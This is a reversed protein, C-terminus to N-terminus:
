CFVTECCLQCRVFFCAGLGFHDITVSFSLMIVPEVLSPVSSVQLVPDPINPMREDYPEIIITFGRTYTGVLTAFDCITQIHMFEDTNTVELTLLLSHLRDYCFKLSKQDIGAQNQLLQTTDFPLTVHKKPMRHVFFNSLM